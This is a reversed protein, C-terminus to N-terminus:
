SNRERGERRERARDRVMIVAGFVILILVPAAYILDVLIHGAHALPPTV